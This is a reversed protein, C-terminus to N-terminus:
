GNKRIIDHLSSICTEAKYAVAALKNMDVIWNKM